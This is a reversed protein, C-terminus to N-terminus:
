PCPLNSQWMIMSDIALQACDEIDGFVQLIMRATGFDENFYCTLIGGRGVLINAVRFVSALDHLGVKYASEFIRLL